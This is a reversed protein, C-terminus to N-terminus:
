LPFERRESQNAQIQQVLLVYFVSQIFIHEYTQTASHIERSELATQHKYNPFNLPQQHHAPPSVVSVVENGSSQSNLGHLCNVPSPSVHM